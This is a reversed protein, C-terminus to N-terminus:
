KRTRFIYFLWLGLVLVLLGGAIRLLTYIPKSKPAQKYKVEEVALKTRITDRELLEATHRNVSRVTTETKRNRKIIATGQKKINIVVTEIISDKEITTVEVESLATFQQEQELKTEQEQIMNTHDSNKTTRCSAFGTLLVFLIIIPAFKLSATRELWGRKFKNNKPAKLCLNNIDNIRKMKILNHLLEQNPFHNLAYLTQEGVIGDQKVGLIEQVIFITRRGSLWMWDVVLNAISQNNILDAKWYNWYNPKLVVEIMEEHTVRMLDTEDIIGDGNKDYGVQRWTKLTVGRNTPGGSDSPDNVYGGEWATIFSVLSKIKAM